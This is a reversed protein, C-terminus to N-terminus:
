LGQKLKQNMVVFEVMYQNSLYFKDGETVLGEGEALPPVRTSGYKKTLETYRKAADSTLLFGKGEIYDLLGSNQENNDWSAERDVVLSPIITHSPEKIAKCSILFCNVLFLAVYNKWHKM